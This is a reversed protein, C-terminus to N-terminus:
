GALATVGFILWYGADKAPVQNIEDALMFNAFISGSHSLITSAGNKGRGTAHTHAM